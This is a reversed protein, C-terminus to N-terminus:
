TKGNWPDPGPKPWLHAQAKASARLKSQQPSVPNWTHKSKTSYRLTTPTPRNGGKAAQAAM